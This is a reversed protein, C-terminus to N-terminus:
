EKAPVVEAWIREVEATITRRCYEALYISAEREDELGPGGQETSLLEHSSPHIQFMNACVLSPLGGFKQTSPWCDSPGVFAIGWIEVDIRAPLVFGGARFQGPVIPDGRNLTGEPFWAAIGGALVHKELREQQKAMEEKDVQMGESASNTKFPVLLHGMSRVLAGVIPLKVLRGSAFVKVRTALGPASSLLLIADLMSTHNAILIKPKAGGESVRRVAERFGQKRVRIWCALCMVLRWQFSTMRVILRRLCSRSPPTKGCYICLAIKALIFCPLTLLFLLINFALKALCHCRFAM